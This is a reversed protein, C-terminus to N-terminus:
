GKAVILGAALFSLALNLYGIYALYPNVLSFPLTVTQGAVVITKDSMGAAAVGIANSSDFNASGINVTTSGYQATIASKASIKEVNYLDSQSSPTEFLACDRAHQERSVACMIADGTCKFASANGAAVQSCQGGFSSGEGGAGGSGTGGAAVGCSGEGVKCISTSTETGVVPSGGGAPTTTTTVTKTTTCTKGDCETKEATSTGVTSGDAKATSDSKASEVVKPAEAGIKYCTDVGNVQGVAQGVPCKLFDSKSPSSAPNAPPVAPQDCSQADGVTRTLHGESVWTGDPKSYSMTREFTANCGRGPTVGPTSACVPSGSSVKGAVIDGYYDQGFAIVSGLVAASACVGNDASICGNHAANEVNPATCTCSSGSLTSNAPCSYVAAVPPASVPSIASANFVSGSDMTYSCYGSNGPSASASSVGTATRSGSLAIMFGVADACTQSIQYRAPGLPQGQRHNNAWTWCNSTCAPTVVTAPFSAYSPTPVMGLTLVLLLAAGLRYLHAM